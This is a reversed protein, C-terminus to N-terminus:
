VRNGCPTDTRTRGGAGDGSLYAVGGWAARIRVRGPVAMPRLDGIRRTGCSQNRKGFLLAPSTDCDQRSQDCRGSSRPLDNPNRGRPCDRTRDRDPGPEPLGSGPPERGIGALTGGPGNRAPFLRAVVPGRLRQMHRFPPWRLGSFQRKERQPPPFRFSDSLQRLFVYPGHPRDYTPSAGCPASVAVLTSGSGPSRSIHWRLSAKSPRADGEDDVQGVPRSQVQRGLRAELRRGSRGLPAPVPRFPIHPPLALFELVLRHRNGRRVTEFVM